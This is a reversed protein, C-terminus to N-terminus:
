TKCVQLQYPLLTASIPEPQPAAPLDELAQEPTSWQEAIEEASRPRYREAAQMLDDLSAGDDDPVAAAEKGTGQAVASKLGLKKRQSPIIEDRKKPLRKGTTAPLKADKIRKELELRAAPESTGYLSLNIPCDYVGKSDALMGEVMLSRDDM